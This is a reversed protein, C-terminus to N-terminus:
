GKETEKEVRFRALWDAPAGYVAEIADPGTVNQAQYYRM